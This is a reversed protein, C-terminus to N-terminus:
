RIRLTTNVTATCSTGVALFANSIVNPAHSVGLTDVHSADYLTLAYVGAPADAAVALTLRMLVGSGFEAPSVAWDSIDVAGGTWSGDNDPVSHSVDWVYSGPTAGLLHDADSSTIALYSPPYTLRFTSAIMPNSEPIGEAAVDL